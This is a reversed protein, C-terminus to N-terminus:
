CQIGQLTYSGGDDSALLILSRWKGSPASLGKGVLDLMEHENFCRKRAPRAYETFLSYSIVDVLENPYWSISVEAKKDDIEVVKFYYGAGYDFCTAGVTCWDPM